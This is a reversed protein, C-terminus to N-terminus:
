HKCDTCDYPRQVVVTGSVVAVAIGDRGVVTGVAVAVLTRVAGFGRGEGAVGTHCLAILQSARSSSPMTRLQPTHVTYANAFSNPEGWERSHAM